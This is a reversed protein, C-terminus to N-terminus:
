FIVFLAIYLDYFIKVKANNGKQTLILLTAAGAAICLVVLFLFIVGVVHRLAVQRQSWKVERSSLYKDTSMLASFRSSRDIDEGVVPVTYDFEFPSTYDAPPVSALMSSVRSTPKKYASEITSLGVPKDTGFTEDM